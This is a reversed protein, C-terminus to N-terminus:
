NFVFDVRNGKQLFSNDVEEDVRFCPPVPKNSFCQCIREICFKSIRISAGDQNFLMIANAGKFESEHPSCLVGPRGNVDLVDLIKSMIPEKQDATLPLENRRGGTNVQRIEGVIGGWVLYLM